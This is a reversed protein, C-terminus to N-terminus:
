GDDAALAFGVIMETDAAVLSMGMQDTDVCDSLAVLGAVVSDDTVYTGGLDPCTTEPAVGGCWFWGYYANTMASLAYAVLAGGAAPGILSDPDNTVNYVITASQTTVPQKPCLTATQTGLQLYIMTYMGECGLTAPNWACLKDGPIYYPAPVNHHRGGTWGGEPIEDQGILKAVGPWNDIMILELSDM